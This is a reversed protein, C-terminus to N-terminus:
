DRSLSWISSLCHPSQSLFHFHLRRSNLISLTQVLLGRRGKAIAGLDSRIILQTPKEVKNAKLVVCILNAKCSSTSLVSFFDVSSAKKFLFLFLEDNEIWSSCDFLLTGSARKEVNLAAPHVCLRKIWSKPETSLSFTFSRWGQGDPSRM